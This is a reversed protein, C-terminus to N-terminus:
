REEYLYKAREESTLQRTVRTRALPLLDEVSVYMAWTYIHATGYQSATAILKGDPSFEATNVPENHERMEVVEQGTNAEWVRATGDDSATVVFSGDPSFVASHVPALHGRLEALTRGTTVDWVRATNDDSATAVWKGNPSFAARNVGKGHGRLEAVVKGTQLEWVRAISDQGATVVFESNPSFSADNVPGSHGRLEVITKGTSAEWVRATGDEGATLVLNGRPNFHAAWLRGTHGRLEAVVKGTALEWVRATNDFSATVVFRGDPSFSADGVPGTHGRLEVISRGTGAEWVRATGDEGATLVLNGDPSFMALWVQGIHGRLEAVVKGTAVEWVRATKDDSATVLWQGNPSFRASSILATHGQLEISDDVTGVAWIRATNDDSATVVRKGDPSFLACRVTSTHGRLIVVIEGTDARWVRATHDESATIILKGDPSFAASRLPGSHGRLETLSRGTSTEWVRATGDLSATVVFKSDPSFVATYVWGTHGRLETVSKGTMADWVRATNDFSATVVYKGDLSFVATRIREMHGRLETVTRTTSVEWVRATNDYSATVIFKGDPSFLASHVAGTHGRLEVVSRGTNAEWVRATGDGSATVVLQGDPSFSAAVVWSTHGRLEAIRTWTRTEWVAATNDDSATVVWRGNPSFSASYVPGTHGRLEAIKKGTGAEWVAATNDDSATVIYKGDPSFSANYVPGTHGRMTARVHSELLAKRLTEVAQSTNAVQVSEIALLLSLEPDMELNGTAMAALERSLRAVAIQRQVEARLGLFGAIMAAILALAGLVTIIRNRASLRHTAQEREEARRREAEALERAAKLERERQEEREAMEREALAKSADLFERELANLENAHEHAWETAQALRVGRYMAGPDRNLTSWEQANETLQRHIRLGERDEDLWQRLMPWQRILAEHSVEAADASTTILRADALTKLVTEVAPKEEPRPVLETLLARRRTDQTGEGLETLRMFINRVIARQEPTLQNFVADATKAIAGRVGGSTYYGELTLVRGRRRKWTELLAHSLLPLAGPEDDVDQLLLDVLGPEFGWGTRRAPEEIARRLEDNVRMPGIYAQHKELAERLNAFQACHAYFDARLAIVVITQGDNWVELTESVKIQPAGAAHLLDDVFAKRESEDKCATFLEEFQDVVLLLRKSSGSRALLKSVFLDLSRADRALDDMLTATATVSESDRTLSAALAKLPRIGPTIVHYQWRTSGDPPLTRDVLPEGRKLASVLGARVVSSKGSGSAGVVALFRSKCLRGILDATLTERGFFLDADAEDFYQLGKFPPGGALAPERAKAAAELEAICDHRECYAVLERAKGGKGEAPLSEYDIRLDFCLTRLENEDFAGTLIQRLQTLREVEPM